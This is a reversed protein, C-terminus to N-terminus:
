SILFDDTIKLFRLFDLFDKSNKRFRQFRLFDLSIRQIHTTAMVYVFVVM